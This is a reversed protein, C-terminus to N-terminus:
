LGILRCKKIVILDDANKDDFYVFGGAFTFRQGVRNPDVDKDSWKLYFRDIYRGLSRMDIKGAEAAGPGLLASRM